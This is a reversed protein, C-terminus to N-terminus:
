LDLLLEAADRIGKPVLRFEPHHVGYRGWPIEAGLYRAIIPQHQGASIARRTRIPRSEKYPWNERSGISEKGCKCSCVRQAV